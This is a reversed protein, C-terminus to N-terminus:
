GFFKHLYLSKLKNLIESNLRLNEIKDLIPKSINDFKMQLEKTPLPIEINSINDITIQPQASGTTYKEFHLEKSLGKLYSFILNSNDELILSNNTIFSYPQSYVVNGSAAGRCSILVKPKDYMYSSFYGIPGNGGFVVYGSNQLKTTPLNKGYKITLATGLFCKEFNKNGFYKIWLKTFLNEFVISQNINFEIKEDLTGLIDVMPM